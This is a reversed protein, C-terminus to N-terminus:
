NVPTDASETSPRRYILTALANAATAQDGKIAHAYTDLTMKASAHGLRASVVHVPVGAQLALTAMSHRTDYLRTELPLGAKALLGKFDAKSWHNPHQLGGDITPFVLQRPNVIERTREKHESLISALEPTFAVRRIQNTKPTSLIVTRDPGYTVAQRVTLECAALDVDPWTLGFLEGPRLGCSFLVHYHAKYPSDAAADLFASIQEASLGERKIKGKSEPLDVADCPNTSLLRWKVAQKMANNLVAHTHRVTRAALGRQTMKAYVRQVDWPGISSLKVGGLDPFIYRELAAMYGDLTRPTVRSSVAAPKWRKEVYQQLTERTPAVLRGRSKELLLEALVTEADRKRGHVTHNLTKRKGNVRPLELRILYTGPNKGDPKRREIIQGAM